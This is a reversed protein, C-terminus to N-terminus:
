PPVTAPSSVIMASFGNPSARHAAVPWADCDDARGAGDPPDHELPDRRAAQSGALDHRRLSAALHEDWIAELNLMFRAIETTM